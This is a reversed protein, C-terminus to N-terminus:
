KEEIPKEYVQVDYYTASEPTVKPLGEWHAGPWHGGFVLGGPKVARAMETMIVEMYERNPIITGDIGAMFFNDISNDPLRAIFDLMDAPVEVEQMKSEQQGLMALLDADLGKHVNKFPNGPVKDNNKPNCELYRNVSIHTKVGYWNPFYSRGGLEVLTKGDLKERVLKQLDAQENARNPNLLGRDFITEGIGSQFADWDWGNKKTKKEVDAILEKYHQMNPNEYTLMDALSIEQKVEVEPQENHPIESM